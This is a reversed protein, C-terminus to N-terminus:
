NQVKYNFYVEEIFAGSGNKFYWRTIYSGPDQPATSYNSFCWKDGPKIKKGVYSHITDNWLKFGNVWKLYYTTDWITTGNNELCATFQFYEGPQLVSGDAPTNTLWKASDGLHPIVATPGVPLTPTPLQASNDQTPVPALTPAVTATPEPMLTPPMAESTQTMSVMVTEAVQTFIVNPDQTPETPAAAGCASVIVSTLVVIATISLKSTIKM